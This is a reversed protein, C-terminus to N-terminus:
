ESNNDTVSADFNFSRIFLLGSLASAKEPKNAIILPNGWQDTTDWEQVQIIEEGPFQEMAIGYAIGSAKGIANVSTFTIDMNGGPFTEPITSDYATYDFCGQEALKQLIRCAEKEKVATTYGGSHARAIVEIPTDPDDSNFISESLDTWFEPHEKYSEWGLEAGTAVAGILPLYATATKAAGALLTKAGGQTTVQKATEFVVENTVADISTDLAVPYLTEAATATAGEISGVCWYDPVAYQLAEKTGFATISYDAALQNVGQTGAALYADHILDKAISISVNYNTAANIAEALGSAGSFFQAM